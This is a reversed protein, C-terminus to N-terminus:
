RWDGSQRRPLVQKQRPSPAQRDILGRDMRVGKKGGFGRDEGSVVERLDRGMNGARGGPRRGKGTQRRKDKEDRLAEGVRSWVSAVRSGWRPSVEGCGGSLKAGPVM